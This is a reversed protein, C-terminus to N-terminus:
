WIYSYRPGAVIPLMRGGIQTQSILIEWSEFPSFRGSMKAACDYSSFLHHWGCLAALAYARCVAVLGVVWCCVLQTDTWQEKGVVSLVHLFFGFSQKSCSAGTVLALFSPMYCQRPWLEKRLGLLVQDLILLRPGGIIRMTILLIAELSYLLAPNICDMMEWHLVPWKYFFLLCCSHSLGKKKGQNKRVWYHSRLKLYHFNWDLQWCLYVTVVAKILKCLWSHLM